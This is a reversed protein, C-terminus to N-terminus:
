ESFREYLDESKEALEEGKSTVMLAYRYLLLASKIIEIEEPTFEM